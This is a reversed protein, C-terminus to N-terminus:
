KVVVTVGDRVKMTGHAIIREGETLGSIIEVVGPKRAGIVVQRRSVKNETDVVYVFHKNQEPVIAEEPVTLTQRQDKILTIEMLMGPKLRHDPNALKARVVISRSVPDVRSDMELVEGKFPTDGYASSRAEILMGKVITAIFTEPVTFDVKVTDIDDLTTILDGPQVLAGTSVRRLGLIGSFPASIIRDNLRAEAAEVEHRAKEYLTKRKDLESSPLAKRAVLEGIRKLEREQEKLDAKANALGAEEEQKALTVIPDGKAIIGGDEFHITAITDTVNATINVSENAYTTGLAEIRDAIETKGVVAATIVVASQKGQKGATGSYFYYGMGILLLLVICIVIAKKPMPM